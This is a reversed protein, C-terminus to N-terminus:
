TLYHSYIVKDSRKKIPSTSSNAPRTTVPMDTESAMRNFRQMRERVSLQEAPTLQSQGEDEQM